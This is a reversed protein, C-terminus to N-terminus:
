PNKAADVSEIAEEISTIAAELSDVESQFEQGKDTELFNESGNDIRDQAEDRLTEVTEKIEELSSICADAAKTRIQNM